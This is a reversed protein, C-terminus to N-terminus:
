DGDAVGHAKTAPSSTHKWSATQQSTRRRLIHGFLRWRNCLLVAQDWDLRLAKRQFDLQSIPCRHTAQAAQPSLKRSRCPRNSPTGLDRQQGRIPRTIVATAKGHIFSYVSVI